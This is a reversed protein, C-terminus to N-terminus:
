RLCERSCSSHAQDLMGLDTLRRRVVVSLVVVESGRVQSGTLEDSKGGIITHRQRQVFKM